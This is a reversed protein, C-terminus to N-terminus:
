PLSLDIKTAKKDLTQEPQIPDTAIDDIPLPSKVKSPKNDIVTNQGNLQQHQELSPSLTEAKISEKVLLIEKEELLNTSQSLDTSDKITSSTYRYEWLAVGVNAVIILLCLAKMIM